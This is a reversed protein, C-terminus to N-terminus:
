LSVAIGNRHPVHVPSKGAVEISQRGSTELRKWFDNFQLYGLIVQSEVSRKGLTSHTM